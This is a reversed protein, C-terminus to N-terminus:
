FLCILHWKPVIAISKWLKECIKVMGIDVWQSTIMERAKATYMYQINIQIVGSLEATM